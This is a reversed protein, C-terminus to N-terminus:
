IAWSEIQYVRFTHGFLWVYLASGGGGTLSGGVWGYDVYVVLPACAISRCWYGKTGRAAREKSYTLDQLESRYLPPLFSGLVAERVQVTAVQHTILWIVGVFVLIGAGVAWKCKAGLNRM